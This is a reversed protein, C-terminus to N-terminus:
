RVIPKTDVQKPNTVQCTFTWASDSRSIGEADSGVALNKLIFTIAIWATLVVLVGILTYKIANKALSTMGSNGTSVIYMLGSVTIIVIGFVFLMRTIWNVINSVLLMLHCIECPEETGCPVLGKEGNGAYDNDAPTANDQGDRDDAADGGTGTDDGGNGSGGHQVPVVCGANAQDCISANNLVRNKARAYLGYSADGFEGQLFDIREYDPDSVPIRDRILEVENTMRLIEDANRVISDYLSRMRAADEPTGSRTDAITSLRIEAEGIDVLLQKAQTYYGNAVALEAPDAAFASGVLLSFFALLIIPFHVLRM